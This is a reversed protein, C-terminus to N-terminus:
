LEMITMQGAAANAKAIEFAKEFEDLKFKGVIEHGAATGLKLVGAEAMRIVGRVDEREYMYQGKITLSKITAMVYPIAIDKNLVGMLSVRGYPKLAMFCSRVHTSENAVAPSIDLYADITGFKKLASLDEQFDNKLQLVSVRPHTAALAELVKLNRGLAIVRAGMALAVDVAAGSYAGTAPAIIITEGAKLDISRLGGYAVMHRALMLLDAMKYGLGGESPSGLLLKENLAYCNELPARTYQAACGDRWHEQQLKIARPDGGFVGFGWLFSVEPDDRGRLFPELTVLQGVQLTTTDPGVAAIRGIARAGPVFTSPTTLGPVGGTTLSKLSHEISSVLVRVLVSGPGAQPTPIDQITLANESFFLAKCTSPLQHAGSDSM